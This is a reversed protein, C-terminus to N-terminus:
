AEWSESDSGLIDCGDPSTGPDILMGACDALSTKAGSLYTKAEKPSLGDALARDYAAARFGKEDHVTLQISVTVGTKKAQRPM